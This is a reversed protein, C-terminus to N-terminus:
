PISTALSTLRGLGDEWPLRLDTPTCLQRSSQVSTISSQPSLLDLKLM